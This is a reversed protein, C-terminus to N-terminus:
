KATRTRSAPLIPVMESDPSIPQSPGTEPYLMTAPKQLSIGTLVSQRGAREVILANPRSSGPLSKMRMQMRTATEQQTFTVLKWGDRSSISLSYTGAPLTEGAYNVENRLIFRGQFSAAPNANDITKAALASEVNQEFHDPDIEAQAMCQTSKLLALVGVTCVMLFMRSKM